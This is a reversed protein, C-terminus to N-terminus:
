GENVFDEIFFDNSKHAHIYTGIEAGSLIRHINGLDDANAIVMDCGSASAIRAASIKTAMGGTGMLSGTSGKAFREVTGDLEMIEPIFEAEESKHPDDTYLGDIDSLLILLDAEILAAVIASLTDNDGFEIEYTAITDNENVVPVVGLTLLEEFTNRANFRNLNDVITHKTMLVQATMQNYESFLKQYMMMLRAQGIAAAAQKLKLKEDPGESKEKGSYYIGRINAAKLGVSIAGSSVLVVDKGGNHLDTLERVLKELRVLDAGGTESHTISSSGIKVVIRKKDSFDRM